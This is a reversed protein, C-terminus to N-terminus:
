RLGGKEICYCVQPDTTYTIVGDATESRIVCKGTLSNEFERYDVYFTSNEAPDNRLPYSCRWTVSVSEPIMILSIGPPVNRTEIKRTTKLEIYRGVPISYSVEGGSLRTGEPAVLAAVGRVDRRVDRLTIAETHVADIQKLRDPEGYVLVSDVSLTMEKLAMYQPKYTIYTVPVIRVKRFEEPAFTFELESVIFSEAEVGSGFIDSAYRSLRSASISYVGDGSHVLDSSDFFVRVVDDSASLAILKFGSTRCRATVVVTEQAVSSRGEINSCAQITVSELASSNRSLIMVLWISFSLLLCAFFAYWSKM